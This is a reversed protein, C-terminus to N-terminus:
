APRTRLFPTKPGRLEPFCWVACLLDAQFSLCAPLLLCLSRYSLGADEPLCGGNTLPTSLGRGAFSCAWLGHGPPPCM